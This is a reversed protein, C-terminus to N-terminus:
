YLKMPPPAQTLYFWHLSLLKNFEKAEEAPRGESMLLRLDWGEEKVRSLLRKLSTSCNGVPDFGSLDGLVRLSPM